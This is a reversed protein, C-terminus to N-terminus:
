PRLAPLAPPQSLVEALSPTKAKAVPVAVPVAPPPPVLSPLAPARRLDDPLLAEDQPAAVRPPPADSVRHLAVQTIEGALPPLEPPQSLDTRQARSQTTTKMTSPVQPSAKAVSSSRSASSLSPLAPARSLSPRDERPLTIEDLEPRRAPIRVLAPLDVVPVRALAPLQPVRVPLAVPINVVPPRRLRAVDPLVPAAAAFLDPGRPLALVMTPRNPPTMHCKGCTMTTTILLKVSPRHQVNRATITQQFRAPPTRSLKMMASPRAGAALRMLPTNAQMGPRRIMTLRQQGIRAINTQQQLRATALLNTRQQLRFTPIFRQQNITRHTLFLNPRPMGFRPGIPLRLHLQTLHATLNQRQLGFRPILNTTQHLNLVPRFTHFVQQAHLNQLQAFNQQPFFARQNFLNINFHPQMRMQMQAQMMAQQQWNINYQQQQMQTQWQLQMQVQSRMGWPCMQARAPAAGALLSLMAVVPVAVSFHRKM